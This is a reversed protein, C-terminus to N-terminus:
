VKKLVGLVTIYNSHTVAFRWFVLDIIGIKEDIKKAIYSCFLQVDDYGFLNAILSLHRDPKACDYGLNRALHYKTIDGIFPLSKLYELKNKSFTYENFYKDLDNYVREIAERKLIHGIVEFDFGKDSCFKNYIKQAIENKMGSNIVVYAYECFFTYKETLEHTLINKM